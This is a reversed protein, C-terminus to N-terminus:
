HTADKYLKILNYISSILGAVLFILTFVPKTNVKKDIVLGFFVGLLIPSVLYYGINLYNAILLKDKDNLDKKKFPTKLSSKEISFNKDIYFNNM